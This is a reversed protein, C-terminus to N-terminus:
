SYFVDMREEKRTCLKFIVFSRSFYTYRESIMFTGYLFPLGHHLMSFPLFFSSISSCWIRKPVSLKYCPLLPLTIREHWCTCRAVSGESAKINPKYRLLPPYTHSDKYVSPACAYFFLMYLFPVGM